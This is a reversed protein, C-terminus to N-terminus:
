GNNLMKKIEEVFLNLGSQTDIHYSDIVRKGCIKYPLVWEEPAPCGCNGAVRVYKSGIPNNHLKNAVELPVYGSVVWYCWYRSFVFPYYKELMEINNYNLQKIQQLDRDYSGDGGLVGAVSYPVESNKSILGEIITISAERLETRMFGDCDFRGALNEFNM